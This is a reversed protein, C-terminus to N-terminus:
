SFSFIYVRKRTKANTGRKTHELKKEEELKRNLLTRNSVCVYACLALSSELRKLQHIFAIENEKNEKQAMQQHLSSLSRTERSNWKGEFCVREGVMWFITRGCWVCKENRKSFVCKNTHKEKRGRTERERVGRTQRIVGTPTHSFIPQAVSSNINTFSFNRM